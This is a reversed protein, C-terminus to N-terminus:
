ANLFMGTSDHFSCGNLISPTKILDSNLSRFDLAGRSTGYQGMNVFEVGQLVAYGRKPVGTTSGPEM